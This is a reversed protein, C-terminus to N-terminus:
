RFSLADPLEHPPPEEDALPGHCGDESDLHRKAEARYISHGRSPWVYTMCALQQM